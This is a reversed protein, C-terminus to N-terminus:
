ASFDGTFVLETKDTAQVSASLATITINVVPDNPGAAPVAPFIQPQTYITFSIGHLIPSLISSLTNTLGALGVASVTTSVIAPIMPGVIPALIPDLLLASLAGTLAAGLQVLIDGLSAPTFVLSKISDIVLDILWNGMMDLHPNLTFDGTFTATGMFQFVIPLTIDLGEDKLDLGFSLTINYQVNGDAIEIDPAKLNITGGSFIASVDYTASFPGFTASGTRHVVGLATEAAHLLVLAATQDVAAIVDPM